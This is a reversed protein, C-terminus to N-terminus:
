TYKLYPYAGNGLNDLGNYLSMCQPKSKYAGTDELVGVPSCLWPDATVNQWTMMEKRLSKVVSAYEEKHALNNLEKPDKELDYLEWPPRYYYETLNKYWDYSIGHHERYLMDQFTPSIYFDQDIPFPM